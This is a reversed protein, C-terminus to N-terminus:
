LKRERAWQVTSNKMFLFSM